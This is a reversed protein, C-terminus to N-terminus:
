RRHSEEVWAGRPTNRDTHPRYRPCAHLAISSLSGLLSPRVCIPSVNDDTSCGKRDITSVWEHGCRLKRKGRESMRRKEGSRLLFRGRLDREEAACLQRFNASRFFMSFTNSVNNEKETDRCSMWRFFANRELWLKSWCTTERSVMGLAMISAYMAQSM